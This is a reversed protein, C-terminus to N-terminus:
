LVVGEDKPKIWRALLDSFEWGYSFLWSRVVKHKNSFKTLGIKHVEQHSTRCLPM